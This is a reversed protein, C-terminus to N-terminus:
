PAVYNNERFAKVTIPCFKEIERLIGDAVTQIEIQPKSGSQESGRLSYFHLASRVNLTVAWETFLGEPLVSRAVEKAVGITRLNDYATMAWRYTTEMVDIATAYRNDYHDDDDPDLMTYDLARGVQMLPRGPEPVWLKANAVETYRQSRVSFSFGVRHRVMQALVFMPAEVHFTAKVHEFPTGHRERLLASVLGEVREPAIDADTSVAAMQAIFADDGDNSLLTVNIEDSLIM